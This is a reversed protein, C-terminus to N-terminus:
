GGLFGKASAGLEFLRAQRVFGCNRGKLGKFGLPGVDVGGGLDLAQAIALHGKLHRFKAFQIRRSFGHAGEVGVHASLVKLVTGVSGPHEQGSGGFGGAFECAGAGAVYGLQAAFSGGGKCGLVVVSGFAQESLGQLVIGVVLNEASFPAFRNCYRHVLFPNSAKLVAHPTPGM